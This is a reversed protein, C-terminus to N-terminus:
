RCREDVNYGPANGDGGGEPTKLLTWSDGQPLRSETLPGWLRETILFFLKNLSRTVVFGPWGTCTSHVCALFYLIFPNSLIQCFAEKQIAKPKKTSTQLRSNLISIESSQTELAGSTTGCELLFIFM